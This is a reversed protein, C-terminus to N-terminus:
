NPLFMSINQIVFETGAPPQPQPDCFINDFVSTITCSAQFAHRGPHDVDQNPVPNSRTNVVQVLAAAVAHAARPAVLTLVFGALVAAGTGLLFSKAFKMQM